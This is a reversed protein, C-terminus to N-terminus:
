EIQNIITSYKYETTAKQLTNVPDIVTENELDMAGDLRRREIQRKYIIGCKVGNTLGKKSFFKNKHFTYVFISHFNIPIPCTSM